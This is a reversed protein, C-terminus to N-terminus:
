RILGLSRAHRLRLQAEDSVRGAEFFAGGVSAAARYFDVAAALDGSAETLVARNYLACPGAVAALSAAVLGQEFPSSDLVPRVRAMVDEDREDIPISVHERSPALEAIAAAVAASAAENMTTDIVVDDIVGSVEQVGEFEREDVIVGRDDAVTVSILTHASLRDEFGIGTTGDGSDIVVENSTVVALDELVDFRVYITDTAIEGHRLWADVGDTELREHRTGDVVSVFWPENDLHALAVDAVAAVSDHRGWADTVVIRRAGDIDVNAVTWQEVQVSAGCGSLAVVIASVVLALRESTTM